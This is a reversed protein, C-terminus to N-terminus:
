RDEISIFERHVQGTYLQRPRSIKLHNSNWMEKWQALWGVTRALAFLVTFMSIPIGIAEYIIGSYFDVNPYLKRKIFYEDSLAINELEQAIKLSSNSSDLKLESLVKYCTSKLVVARPDYNKYVRHGFGMLKFLDNPNKARDIYHQINNVNNIEKLMRIVAENAGGHLPGWLSAIGSSVCAFLNSASSGSNRVTSTSANQGHDIHLILIKELARSFIPNTQYESENSSFMMCLFQEVYTLGSFNSLSSFSFDQKIHHRYIMAVIVSITSLIKIISAERSEETYVNGNNEFLSMSSILSMLMSMPHASDPFSKLINVLDKHILSHNIIKDVFNKYETKTPLEKYLLLYAVEIFNSNNALDQIDYGRYRLVGREGDIYTISSECSATSVFGPDYTLYGCEAYLSSIDIVDSGVTAHKIKCDYTKGNIFLKASKTNSM